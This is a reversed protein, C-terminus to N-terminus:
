TFDPRAWRESMHWNVLDIAADSELFENEDELADENLQYLDNDLDDSFQQLLDTISNAVLIGVDYEHDMFIVQGIQGVATPALDV